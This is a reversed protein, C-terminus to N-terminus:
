KIVRFVKLLTIILTGAGAVAGFIKMGAIFLVHSKELPDVREELNTTRRMHEGLSTTNVAINIGQSAQTTKIDKVDARIEKLVDDIQDFRKDSM